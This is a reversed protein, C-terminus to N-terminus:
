SPDIVKCKGFNVTEDGFNLTDIVGTRVAVEFHMDAFFLLDVLQGIVSSLNEESRGNVPPLAPGQDLAIVNRDLLNCATPSGVKIM